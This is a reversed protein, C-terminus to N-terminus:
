QLLYNTRTSNTDPVSYKFAPCIVSHLQFSNPHGATNVDPHALFVLVCIGTVFMYSRYCNCPIHFIYNDSFVHVFSYQNINVISVIISRTSIHNSCLYCCKFILFYISIFSHFLSYHKASLSFCMCVIFCM